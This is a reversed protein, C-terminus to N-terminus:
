LTAVSIATIFAGTRCLWWDATPWTEAPTAWLASTPRRPLRAVTTTTAASIEGTTEAGSSSDTVNKCATVSLLLFGTLLIAVAKKM